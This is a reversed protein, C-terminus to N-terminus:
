DSVIAGLTAATSKSTVDVTGFMHLTRAASLVFWELVAGNATEVMPDVKVVTSLRRGVEHLYLQPSERIWSGRENVDLYVGM